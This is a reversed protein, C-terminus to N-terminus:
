QHLRAHTGVHSCTYYQTRSSPFDGSSEIFLRLVFDQTQQKITIWNRM